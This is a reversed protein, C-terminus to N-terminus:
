NSISQSKDWKAANIYDIVKLEFAKFTVAWSAWKYTEADWLVITKYSMHVHMDDALYWHLAALTLSLTAAYSANM